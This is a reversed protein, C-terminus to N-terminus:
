RYSTCYLYIQSSTQGWTYVDKVWFLPLTAILLSASLCVTLLRLYLSPPLSYIRPNSPTLHMMLPHLRVGLKDATMKLHLPRTESGLCCLRSVSRFGPSTPQTVHKHKTQRATLHTWKVPQQPSRKFDPAKNVNMAILFCTWLYSNVINSGTPQHEAAPHHGRYHTWYPVLVTCFVGPLAKINELKVSELQCRYKLMEPRLSLPCRWFFFFFGEADDLTM